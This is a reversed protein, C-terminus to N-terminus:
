RQHDKFKVFPSLLFRGIARVRRQRQIREKCQSCIVRTENADTIVYKHELCLGCFCETCRTYCTPCSDNQCGPVTCKAIGDVFSHGCHLFEIVRGSDLSGEPSLTVANASVAKITPMGNGKQTQRFVGERRIPQSGPSFLHDLDNM